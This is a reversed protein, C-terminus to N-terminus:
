AIFDTEYSRPLSKSGTTRTPRVWNTQDDRRRQRYVGHGIQDREGLRLGAAQGIRRGPDARRMLNEGLLELGHGATSM